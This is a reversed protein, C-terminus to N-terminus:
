ASTTLAFSRPRLRCACEARCHCSKERPRGPVIHCFGHRRSNGNINTFARLDFNWAPHRHRCIIRHAWLKPLRGPILFNDRSRHSSDVSRDSVAGTGAANGGDISRGVICGGAPTTMSARSPTRARAAHVSKSRASSRRSEPLVLWHAQMRRVSRCAAGPLRHPEGDGPVTTYPNRITV